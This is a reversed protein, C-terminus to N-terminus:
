RRVAKRLEEKLMIEVHGDAFGAALKDLPLELPEHIVITKSADKIPTAPKVYRYGAHEQTGRPNILLQPGAYRPAVAELTEPWADRHDQSHMLCALVLQRLHSVSQTLAAHDRAASLGPGAIDALVQAIEEDNLALTLRDGELKPVLRPILKGAAPLDRAVQPLMAAMEAGKQILAHLAQAHAADQSKITLKFSSTPAAEVGIGVWMVGRTLTTAQVDGLPIPLKPFMTEVVRRMDATPIFAFRIPADGAASLAEALEPRNVAKSAQIRRLQAASGMFVAKNNDIPEAKEPWHGSGEAILAVPGDAAGSFLLAAVAEANGAGGAEMPALIFGPRPLDALAYVMFLHRAGAKLLPDRIAPDLVRTKRLEAPIQEQEKPTLGLRPSWERLKAEIAKADARQLDIQAVFLTEDSVYPAILRAADQAHAPSSVALLLLIIGFQIRVNM